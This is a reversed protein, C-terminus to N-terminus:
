SYVYYDIALGKRTNITMSESPFTVRTAIKFNSYVNNAFESTYLALESIIEGRADNATVDLGLKVYYDDRDDDLVISKSTFTKKYYSTTNGVVRGDAYKSADNGLNQGTTISRFAVERSLAQDTPVPAVPTFPDATPTGGRGIAFLNIVRNNLQTANEGGYNMGFIKRLNFERGPRVVLNKRYGLITGTEPDRLVIYNFKGKQSLSDRKAEENLIDKLQLDDNLTLIKNSTM